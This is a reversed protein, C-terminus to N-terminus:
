IKLNNHNAIVEASHLLLYKSYYGFQSGYYPFNFDSYVDITGDVTLNGM